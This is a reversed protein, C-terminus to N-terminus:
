VSVPFIISKSFFRGCHWRTQWSDWVSQGPILTQVSMDYVCAWLTIFNCFKNVSVRAFYTRNHGCMVPFNNPPLRGSLHCTWCHKLSDSKRSHDCCNMKVVWRFSNIVALSGIKEFLNSFLYVRVRAYISMCISHLIFFFEIIICLSHFFGQPSSCGNCWWAM